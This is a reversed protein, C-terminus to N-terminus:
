VSESFYKFVIFIEHMTGYKSWGLPQDFYFTIGWSYKAQGPKLIWVVDMTIDM